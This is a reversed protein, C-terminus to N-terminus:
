SAYKTSETGAALPVVGSVRSYLDSFKKASIERTFESLALRRGHSALREALATDGALRRIADAIERPAAANVILGTEDHRVADTIGGTATSIVALGALMAEILALGQAELWGDPAPRSPGVFIDAARLYNQIQDSPIWGTFSVRNVIGLRNAQKQFCDRDPGDGVILAAIDPLEHQALAVAELMDGVGKEMVLRGVFILLPGNGRRFRDRLDAAEAGDTPSQNTVGMPIRVLRRMRRALQEAAAQTASSNVTVASARSLVLRKCARMVPGRLAFVDGGHVTAVHPVRLLGASLAATLGQPLLWHSHVLAVDHRILHWLVALWQAVVLFPIKVLIWRNARLKVLAGGDYCVTQLSEPWLYRFRHVPVGDLVQRRAAGPAHPALVLINWGLSRLDQALHHVFPTTSDGAWRPYSSTILLVENSRASKKVGAQM